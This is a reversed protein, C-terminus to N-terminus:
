VALGGGGAANWLHLGKGSAVTGKAVAAGVHERAKSSMGECARGNRMVVWVGWLTLLAQLAHMRYVALSYDMCGGPDVKPGLSRSLFCLQACNPVMLLVYASYISSFQQFCQLSSMYYKRTFINDITNIYM